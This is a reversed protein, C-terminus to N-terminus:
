AAEKGRIKRGNTVFWLRGDETRVWVAPHALEVIRGPQWGGERGDDLYIEVPDGVKYQETLRTRM